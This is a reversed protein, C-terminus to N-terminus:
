HPTRSLNKNEKKAVATVLLVTDGMRVVVSGTAQRAMEGTELIVQHKGYQFTKVIKSNVKNNM